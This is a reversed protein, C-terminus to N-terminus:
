PTTEESVESDRHRVLLPSKAHNREIRQKAAKLLCDVDAISTRLLRATHTEPYHFIERLVFVTREPTPLMEVDHTVPFSRQVWAQLGGALPRVDEFGRRHLSQAVRASTFESPCSCYLVVERNTALDADQYRKYRELLHPNIRLASPIAVLGQAHKTGGQLDLILVNEGSRLKNMLQDPTIRALRFESLFRYWRIIRLTVFACVAAVGVLAALTGVKSSYNAIRDLQTRFAYGLAVYASSWLIAGSADFALFQPRDTGSIGAMPAAVADLGIVFKSFLLVKPGYHNFRESMKSVCATPNRTSGCIFHLTRSGWSRGAEYWALDALLFAILSVLVINVVSLSGLGALAGGALLILNAPVPLCAQRGLVSVFLIWYGHRALFAVMENM